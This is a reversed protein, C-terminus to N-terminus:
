AAKAGKRAKQGSNRETADSQTRKEKNPAWRMMANLAQKRSFQTVNFEPSAQLMRDFLPQPIGDRELEALRPELVEPSPIPSGLVRHQNELLEVLLARFAIRRADLSPKSPFLQETAPDFDVRGKQYPLSLAYRRTNELNAIWENAWRLLFVSRGLANREDASPVVIQAALKALDMASPLKIPLGDIPHGFRYLTGGEERWLACLRSMFQKKELKPDREKKRGTRPPSSKSSSHKGQHKRKQKSTRVAKKPNM